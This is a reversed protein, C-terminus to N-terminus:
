KIVVKKGNMIVLGKHGNSVRQGNLNYMVDSRVDSMKGKVDTIGTTEDGFVADLSHAPTEAPGVIYARFANVSVDTGTVKVFKNNSYGYVTGTSHATKVDDVKALTGTFTFDGQVTNNAATAPIEKDTLSSFPTVTGSGAPVFIYPKYAVTTSVESFTLATGSVSALEYFTGAASVETANLAFPLCVTYKNGATFSRDYEVKSSTSAAINFATASTAKFEKVFDITNVTIANTLSNSSGGKISTIKMNDVLTAYTTVNSFTSGGKYIYRIAGATYAKLDALAYNYGTVDFDYASSAGAGSTGFVPTNSATISNGFNNTIETSGLGEWVFPATKSSSSNLTTSITMTEVDDNKELYVDKASIEMTSTNGSPGFLRIATMTSLNSSVSSLTIVLEDTQTKNIPDSTVTNAGNSNVYQIRYQAGSGSTTTKPTVKIHLTTYNELGGSPFSFVQMYSNSGATFSLVNDAINANSLTGFTAYLRDKKAQMSVVALM